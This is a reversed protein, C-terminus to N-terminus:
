GVIGKQHKIAICRLQSVILQFEGGAMIILLYLIVCKSILVDERVFLLLEALAEVHLLLLM